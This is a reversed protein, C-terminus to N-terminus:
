RKGYISEIQKELFKFSTAAQKELNEWRGEIIIKGTYKIKKLARLYPTFDESTPASRNNKEAIDCHILNKGAQEIITPGENEQLMHYIDACLKFNSHNVAKVIALAEEVTNIFNTESSNLNELALMVKYQSALTAVKRAISVFQERAKIRDFGDPIRRAGGSGWVIMRVNAAKCRQFVKECYLLIKAEDVDPGVLKLEGPIFVNVAYIKLKAKKIRVINKEFQEDSVKIPSLLNQVNEVGYRYGSAYLLSDNDLSKDIGIEPQKQAFAVSSVLSFLLLLKKMARRSSLAEATFSIFGKSGLGQM